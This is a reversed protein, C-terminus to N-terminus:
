EELILKEIKRSGDSFRVEVSYVGPRQGKLNIEPNSSKATSILMGYINRVRVESIEANESLVQFTNQTPNPYINLANGGGSDCDLLINTKRTCTVGNSLTIEAKVWLYCNDYNGPYPLYFPIAHSGTGTTTGIYVYNGGNVGCVRYSWDITMDDSPCNMWAQFDSCGEVDIVSFCSSSPCTPPPPPDDDDDDCPSLCSGNAVSSRIVNGPQQGFGENFNIGVNQLHCYSMITGGQAPLGPLACNGETFGSCGDIATNNGNWVCAHTHRSGFLHGFEHTVVMVSWSYAPVTSYSSQISSFSMSNDPNSNCIGSFGAAIGGSAQYSLLQALDGNFSGVNAQFDDLMGSSTSASYPSTVDWVVIESIITNINENAYLTSVQNILGTTYNVAGLVGGKNDHIDKDVEIYFRVCDNTTTSFFLQSNKYFSGKSSNKSTMNCVFDKSTKADDYFVHEANKWKAGTLKGLVLNGFESSSFLGMLEGEFVSLAAISTADNKIIGRYHVGSDVDAARKTSATIVQFDETFLNIKVLEIELHASNIYPIHLSFRDPQEALIEDILGHNLNLVVYDAAVEDLEDVKTQDPNQNISTLSFRSFNEGIEKQEQVLQFPRIPSQGFVSLGM